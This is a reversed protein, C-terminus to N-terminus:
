NVIHYMLMFINNSIHSKIANVYICTNKYMLYSSSPNAHAHTRHNCNDPTVQPYQPRCTLVFKRGIITKSHSIHHDLVSTIVPRAQCVHTNAPRISIHPAKYPACISTTIILSISPVEPTLSIHTSMYQSADFNHNHNRANINMYTLNHMQNM